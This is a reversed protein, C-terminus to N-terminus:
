FQTHLEAPLDTIEDQSYLAAMVEQKAEEEPNAVSKPAFYGHRAQLKYKLKNALKVDLSHYRGDVKLNQPSFGLVYSLAPAAGAERMGEDVDNRNHFFTGGTGDALQALLEENAFQAAIRYSSEVGATQLPGRPPDSIDGFLDPTYLGRADITNIVIGARLAREIVDYTEAQLTSPIFGPSVFVMVRQGPMAALRRMTDEMHRYAYETEVDGANVALSAQTQALAQASAAQRSDGGFACVLADATAVALAQTDSKNVILDAQYYTVDPCAHYGAGATPRPIIGLLAKKLLDRDDTFEQTSQGSTTYIGVRDSPALAGFFKTAADRVYLANSQDLHLDDFMMAVFRQPLIVPPTGPTVPTGSDGPAGEAPAPAAVHMGPTELSFSSIVQPKRNDFLLFDEKKLNTVIKGDADRVVVRALVLNVKVRFTAPNDRTAVESQAAPAPAQPAGPAADNKAPPTQQSAPTDSPPAQASPGPSGALPVAFVILLALRRATLQLCSM